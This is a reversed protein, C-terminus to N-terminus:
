GNFAVTPQYAIEGHTVKFGNPDLVTGERTVRAGYIENLGADRGDSWVVFYNQGDFAVSPYFKSGSGRCIAIGNRDLVEGSASIRAGYIDYDNWSEGGRRDMWVA